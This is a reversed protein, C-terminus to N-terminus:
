PERRWGTAEIRKVEAELDPGDLFSLWGRVRVTEGPACDPFKPDSHLCPCPANAWPRDCPEWATIIWRRKSEDHVAVYPAHISKNENTQASFGKAGKLMVCNQVRLDVLPQETGNKLWLEMRVEGPRPDIRAGFRIGNPLRREVSLKDGERAWELRDLEIGRKTWVTDIHTHALYTLGLNSWIAEPVDVVVYSDADWPTFVSIKTERQPDIAGDLFGIRPHRGGPYPLVLLPSGSPRVPRRGGHIGLRDLASEIQPDTLGTAAAIESTTFHHFWVMNDLWMKLENDDAPTRSNRPSDPLGNVEALAKVWHVKPEPTPPHFKIPTPVLCFVVISLSLFGVIRRGWGLPVTDNSTPPHDVGLVVVVLILMLAFQYSDTAAMYTAAGLVAVRAILWHVRRGFLAYVVHGGDLQSVPIMNIGTVLMGLWAASYLPNAVVRSTSVGPHLYHIFMKFLLPDGLENWGDEPVRDMIEATKIGYWGIPIALVLGCLPGALGIDFMQKRNAQHSFMAIVAGMTGTPPLPMPIFYPLSAPVRYRLATLFHGMEHALLISMVAAMYTLGDTWRFMALVTTIKELEAREGLGLDRAQAPDIELFALNVNAGVLLTSACTALFLIVPLAIRRRVVTPPHPAPTAQARQPSIAPTEIGVWLPEPAIWPNQAKSRDAGAPPGGVEIPQDPVGTNTTEDM